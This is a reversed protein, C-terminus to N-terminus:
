DGDSDQYDVTINLSYLMQVKLMPVVDQLEDYTNLMNTNNELLQKRFNDDLNNIASEAEELETIINNGLNSEGNQALLDKYSAGISESNIHKGNFFDKCSNLAKLCLQKSINKRYYAEVGIEYIQFGNWVGSPIGVKNARLGKEYYYIFDNTLLNLSSTATIGNSSIFSEKNAQWDNIILNTNNEMQIIVDNLYALYKSGDSGLYYDLILNSDAELGYLMYDLAPLGQVTWSPFTSENLNYSQSEINNNIRTPNCPYTNMTKLYDIEEAKGINFMEVAQWSIYAKLWSNRLESINQTNPNNTFEEAKSKLNEIEIRLNEHAPIIINNTINTLVESRSATQEYECSGDDETANSSYNLASEDMCGLITNPDIKKDGKQCSVLITAIGLIFLLTKKMINKTLFINFSSSRV